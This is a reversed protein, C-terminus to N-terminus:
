LLPDFVEFLGLDAFDRTNRTAFRRVGAAHLTHALRLDILQRRPFNVQDIDEWVRSMIPRCEVVQWHPNGRLRRCVEAAEVASYPRPFVAKNRILLYLEVLVLDSIVVDDKRSAELVFSRAAEHVTSDSNLSYVFINTDIALAMSASRMRLVLIVGSSM